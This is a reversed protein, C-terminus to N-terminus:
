ELVKEYPSFGIYDNYEEMTSHSITQYILEKNWYDNSFWCGFMEKGEVLGLKTVKNETDMMVVVSHNALLFQNLLLKIGDNDEFNNPLKELIKKCFEITDSEGDGLNYGNHRTYIDEFEDQFNIIGNHVMGFRNNVLFPHTQEPNIKGHTALRFHIVVESDDLDHELYARRFAKFRMFGKAIVLTGGKSFMYGAGNPNANWCARLTKELLKVGKPKHIVVCM